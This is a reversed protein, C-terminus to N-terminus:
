AFVGRKLDIESHRRAQNHDTRLRYAPSLTHLAYDLIGLAEAEDHVTCFWNRQAAVKLALWKWYNEDSKSDKPRRNIGLFRM